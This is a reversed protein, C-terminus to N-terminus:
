YGGRAHPARRGASRPAAGASLLRQLSRSRPLVFWLLVFVGFLAAACLPALAGLLLIRAILYFDLCVAAALPLMASLLLRTSLAIFTETIHQSGTQRHFAAPTMVLAAAVATLGTALLHTKQERATLREWFAADDVAVLQFGFLAQVGPLVMRCEQLLCDGVKALPLREGDASIPEHDTM